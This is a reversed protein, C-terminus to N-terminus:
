FYMIDVEDLVKESRKTQRKSNSQKKAELKSVRKKKPEEKLQYNKLDDKVEEEILEQKEGPDNKDDEEQKVSAIDSDVQFNEENEGLNAEKLNIELIISDENNYGSL